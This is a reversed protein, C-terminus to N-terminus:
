LNTAAATRHLVINEVGSKGPGGGFIFKLHLHENDLVQIVFGKVYAPHAAANTVDVFSFEATGTSEDIHTAKLRPQNQAACYHTMRLDPGDVHYVTSMTPVDGVMILNEVLASGMGTLYYNAKLQGSGTRGESWELTGEWQGALKKLRDFMRDSETQADAFALTSSLCAAFTIARLISRRTTSLFTTTQM